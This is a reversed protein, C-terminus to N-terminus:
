VYNAQGSKKRQAVEHQQRDPRMAWSLVVRGAWVIRHCTQIHLNIVSRVGTVGMLLANVLLRGGDGVIVLVFITGIKYKM